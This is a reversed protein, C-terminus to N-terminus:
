KKKPRGAFFLYALALVVVFYFTYLKALTAHKEVEWTPGYETHGWYRIKGRREKIGYKCPREIGYIIEFNGYNVRAYEYTREYPISNEVLQYHNGWLEEGGSICGLDFYKNGFPQIINSFINNNKNYKYNYKSLFEDMFSMFAQVIDNQPNTNKSFYRIRCPTLTGYYLAPESESYISKNTVNTLLFAMKPAENIKYSCYAGYKGSHDFGIIKYFNNHEYIIDTSKDFLSVDIEDLQLYYYSPIQIYLDANQCFSQLDYNAENKLYDYKDSYRISTIFYIVIGVCLVVAIIWKLLKNYYAQSTSKLVKALKYLGYLLAIFLIGYIFITLSLPEMEEAEEAIEDVVWAQSYTIINNLLFCILLIPRKM